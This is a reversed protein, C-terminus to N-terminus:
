PDPNSPEGSVDSRARAIPDTLEVALPSDPQAPSAPPPRREVGFRGVSDIKSSDIRLAGAAVMGGGFEFSNNRNNGSVLYLYNQTPDEGILVTPFIANPQDETTHLFVIDGIKFDYPEGEILLGSRAFNAKLTASDSSVDVFEDLNSEKIAWSVFAAVWGEGPKENVAKLYKEAYPGTNNFDIDRACRKYEGIVLAFFHDLRPDGLSPNGINARGAKCKALDEETMNIIPTFAYWEYTERALKTAQPTSLAIVGLALAALSPWFLRPSAPIDIPKTIPVDGLVLLRLREIHVGRSLALLILGLGILGGSVVGFYDTL